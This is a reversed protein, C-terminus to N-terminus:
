IGTKRSDVQVRYEKPTLGAYKKFVRSFHSQSSFGLYLAIDVAPRDTYRLIRKSEEVKRKLIYDSLNEGTEKKFDTSLRSRGRCLERAIKEVTVPESLHKFLYNTVEVVIKSPAKGYHLREMREAYDMVLRYNLNTVEQVNTLLECKRIYSDSLTLAEEHDMGGGIAARSVLTATVVLLNKTQRLDSQAIIGGRIAPANEFFRKLEAVDGKRVLGLMYGEIDMTNHPYAERDEARDVAEEAISKILDEQERDIITVDMLSLKEGNNLIFNILCLYQAVSSLPLSVIQKMSGIFDALAEKKVGLRFSVDRLAQDSLPIQSTPGIVVLGEESRVAGFYADDATIYYGVHGKIKFVEEKYPEFPDVPFSALSYSYSLKEEEYVRVPIGSLHAIQTCLYRVDM